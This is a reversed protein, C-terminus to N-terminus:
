TAETQVKKVQPILVQTWDGQICFYMCHILLSDDALTTSSPRNLIVGLTIYPCNTNLFSYACFIHNYSKQEVKFKKVPVVEKREERGGACSFTCSIGEPHVACIIRQFWASGFDPLQMNWGNPTSNYKWHNQSNSIKALPNPARSCNFLLGKRERIVLIFHIKVKTQTMFDANKMTLKSWSLMSMTKLWPFLFLKKKKEIHRNISM